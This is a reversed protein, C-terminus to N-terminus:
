VARWVPAGAIPYRRATPAVRGAESRLHAALRWAPGPNPRQVVSHRELQTVGVWRPPLDHAARNIRSRRWERMEGPWIRYRVPRSGDNGRDRLEFRSPQSAPHNDTTLHAIGPLDVTSNWLRVRFSVMAQWCGFPCPAAMVTADTDPKRFPTKRRWAAFCIGIGLASTVSCVALSPVASPPPRRRARWCCEAGPLM